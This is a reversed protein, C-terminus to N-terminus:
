FIECVCERNTQFLVANKIYDYLYTTNDTHGAFYVKNIAFCRNYESTLRNFNQYIEVVYM